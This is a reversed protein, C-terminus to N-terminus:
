FSLKTGAPLRTLREIVMARTRWDMAFTVEVKDGAALGEISASAGLAFPMVMAPMGVVRGSEDAFSPMAEHRLAIQRHRAQPHPLTVVEARVTYRPASPLPAEEGRCGAFLLLSLLLALTRATPRVLVVLAHSVDRQVM